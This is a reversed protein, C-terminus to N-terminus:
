LGMGDDEQGGNYEEAIRKVDSLRAVLLYDKKNLRHLVLLPIKGKTKGKGGCAPCKELSIEGSNLKLNFKEWDFFEGAMPRLPYYEGAGGCDECVVDEKKALDKTKDFLNFIAWDKKQKVEIFLRPHLSDSRTFKSNGGSLPTRTSGFWKSVNAEIKKWTKTPTL